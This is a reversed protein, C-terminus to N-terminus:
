SNYKINGITIHLSSGAFYTIPIRNKKRFKDAWDCFVPLWVNVRSVHAKNVDYWFDVEQGNLDQFEALILPGHIRPNQITIHSGHAPLQYKHTHYIHQHWLWLYYRCFDIHTVIRIGNNVQIKGTARIMIKPANEVRLETIL